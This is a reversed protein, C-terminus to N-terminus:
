RAGCATGGEIYVASIVRKMTCQSYSSPPCAERRSSAAVPPMTSIPCGPTEDARPSRESFDGSKCECDAGLTSMLKEPCDTGLTPM